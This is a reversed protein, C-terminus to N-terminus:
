AENPHGLFVTLQCHVVSTNSREDYSMRRFITKSDQSHMLHRTPIGALLPSHFLAYAVM